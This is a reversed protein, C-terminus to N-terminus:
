TKKPAGMCRDGPGPRLGRASTSFLLQRDSSWKHEQQSIWIVLDWANRIGIVLLLILAVGVGHLSLAAQLLFGVGSLLLLVYGAIPLGVFWIWDLFPLKHHRTQQHAKTYAL